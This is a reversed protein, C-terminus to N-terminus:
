VSAFGQEAFHRDFAFATQIGMSRMSEFSICDVLSLQRSGATLFAALGAQHEEQTIWRVNLLPVIDDQFTRVAQMGLRHHILRFAEILVYNTCVMDLKRTVLDRWLEAASGHHLDDRDLLAFLASTDVFVTM